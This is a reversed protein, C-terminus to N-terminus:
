LPTSLWRDLDSSSPAGTSVHRVVGKGDVLVFTPLAEIEYHKKVSGDDVTVEYPIDWDRKIRAADERSGDLSVGVFAVRGNGHRRWAERVSPAARECAGCWSAFVEILVPKGRQDALRFREGPRDAVPLDFLMAPEGESPGSFKRSVFLLGLAAVGAYLSWDLIRSLVLKV